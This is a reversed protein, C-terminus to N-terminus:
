ARVCVDSGVSFKVVRGVPVQRGIWRAPYRSYRAGSSNARNWCTEAVTTLSIAATRPLLVRRFGAQREVRCRPGVAVIGVAPVQGIRGQVLGVAVRDFGPRELAIGPVREMGRVRLRDFPLDFGSQQAQDVTENDASRTSIQCRAPFRNVTARTVGVCESLWAVVLVNGQRDVPVGHGPRRGDFM